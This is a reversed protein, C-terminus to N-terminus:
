FWKETYFWELSIDRNMFDKFIESAPKISWESLIKNFFSSATDKDFIWNKQFISYIDAEIIQSRLYSYYWAAYWWDFIHSFGAYTKNNKDNKFYSTNKIIDQFEEDLKTVSDPAPQTHFIMDTRSYVIQTITDIWSSLTRSTNLKDILDDSIPEWTKYNNAFTKLSDWWAWNEMFQSPVEVFDREVNFSTLEPYLSKASLAHIAHWFEHFLTTVDYHTLLTTWNTWKSINLVDIVMLPRTTTWVSKTNRLIDAWAWSSKNPNYFPDLLYYWLLKGDKYVEYAEVDDSYMEQDLKRMEIWYLKNAIAFLWKKINEFEFYQKLEEEDLKYKQEQLIRSYYGYDYANLDWTLHFYDKIEKAEKDAKERAKVLIEDEQKMVFEPSPAMKDALSYEWYNQFGLIQSMEERLKLIQIIIERNDYTWTSAFTKYATRIDKRIDTDSCYAILYDANNVTFLYGAKDQEQATQHAVDLVDQPMDKIKELNEVYYTFSKESDLLNNAFKTTLTTLEINIEKLRQIKDDSLNIGNLEFSKIAREVIRKQETDLNETQSINKYIGYLKQSFAIENSFNSYKTQFNEIINRIDDNSNVSNYNNLLSYLYWLKDDKNYSELVDFTVSNPDIMLKEFEVKKQDLLRNLLFPMNQTAGTSYLFKTDPIWTKDLEALIKNQIDINDSTNINDLLKDLLATAKSSKQHKQQFDTVIKLVTDRSDEGHKQIYDELKNTTVVILDNDAQTLDYWYSVNVLLIFFWLVALWIKKM